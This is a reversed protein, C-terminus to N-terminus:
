DVVRAFSGQVLELPGPATSTEHLEMIDASNLETDFLVVRAISGFTPYAPELSFVEINRVGFMWPATNEDSHSCSGLSVHDNSGKEARSGDVFLELCKGWKVAIHHWTGADVVGTAELTEGFGNEDELKFVLRDDKALYIALHASGDASPLEKSVAGLQGFSPLSDWRAWFALTGEKLEFLPDHPVETRHTVWDNQPSANGHAHTDVGARSADNYVGPNSGIVDQATSSGTAEDLPWYAIAGLDRVLTTFADEPVIADFSLRSRSNAAAADTTVRYNTTRATPTAATDVDIVTATIGGTGLKLDEFLIGTEATAKFTDPATTMGHIALEAASQALIRAESTDPGLRARENLSKRVAVGSLALITVVSVTGLVAIYVSGRREPYSQIPM